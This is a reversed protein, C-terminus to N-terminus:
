LSLSNALTRENAHIYARTAPKGKSVKVVKNETKTLNLCVSLHKASNNSYITICRISGPPFSLPSLPSLPHPPTTSPIPSIPVM